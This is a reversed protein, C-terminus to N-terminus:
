QPLFQKIDIEFFSISVRAFLIVGFVMLLLGIGQYIRKLVVPTLIPKIREAFFVKLTDTSFIGLLTGIMFVNYGEKGAMTIAATSLSIWVVFVFPNVFNILFGKIFFGMYDTANLELQNATGVKPRFLYDAGIVLLIIGGALGIYFQIKTDTLYNSVGLKTLLVCISDSAIIGCAVAWGAKFGYQFAAQILTFFVPGIFAIMAIGALLGKLFVM